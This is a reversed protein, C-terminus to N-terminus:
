GRESEERKERYWEQVADDMQDRTVLEPEGEPDAITKALENILNDVADMANAWDNMTDACRRARWTGATIRERIVARRLREAFQSGNTTNTAPYSVFGGTPGLTDSM